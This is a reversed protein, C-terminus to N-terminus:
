LAGGEGSVAVAGGQGHGAGATPRVARHYYGVRGDIRRVFRVNAAGIEALTADVARDIIRLKRRGRWADEIVLGEITALGHMDLSAVMAGVYGDPRGILDPQLRILYAPGTLLQYTAIM